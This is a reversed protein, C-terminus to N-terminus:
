GKLLDDSSSKMARAISMRMAMLGTIAGISATLMPSSLVPDQRAVDGSHVQTVTWSIGTFRSSVLFFADRTVLRSSKTLDSCYRDQRAGGLDLDHTM